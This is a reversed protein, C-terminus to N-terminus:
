RMGLLIQVKFWARMILDGILLDVGFAREIFWYLSIVILFLSGYVLFASYKKNSRLFYLIPFILAIIVVQGIEVGLNFGLLSYTLFEGTLGLDGLVSAFGFGHFLGFFSVIVWDKVKFIPRINHLAALGISFAIISEVFAAPLNVIQLTALTLTITHAITFFTIIKVIYVFAPRFKPVGTWFTISDGKLWAPLRIEKPTEEKNRRVVAPLILALLFLIHDIGIWIHWIGQKIMAWFGLWLSSRDFGFRDSTDGPGFDLLINAENNIIGAKWNYEIILFGRHTPDKDFFVSYEMEMEEPTPHTGPLDFVLLLFNGLGSELLREEKFEIPHEGSESRFATNSLLYSKLRPLYPQLDELTSNGPLNTGFLKNIEKLNIEFRGEIAKEEYVRFYVYSQNPVHAKVLSFTMMLLATIVLTIKKKM